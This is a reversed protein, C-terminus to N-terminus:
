FSQMFNIIQNQLLVAADSNPNWVHFVHKEEEAEHLRVNKVGKKKLYDEYMVGREKLFDMRAVFVATAPFLGWEVEAREFNCSHFDRDKGDPLSLKWFMDNMKVEEVSGAEAELETRAESGFYPHIPIIGKISIKTNKEGVLKIAVNHAINGGASDGALFVRSLDATNLWQLAAFCDDYAVPLKNEPALRYNVSLIIAGSAASRNELFVHYGLWTTSGICFGGGHFYLLVPLPAPPAAASPLFVRATIPKSPDITVDKSTASCAAARHDTRVVTGDSFVQLFSPAEAILSM